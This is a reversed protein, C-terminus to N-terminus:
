RRLIKLVKNVPPWDKGMKMGGKRRRKGRMEERGVM